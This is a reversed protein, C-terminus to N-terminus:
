PLTISLEWSDGMQADPLKLIKCLASYPANTSYHQCPFFRRVLLFVQGLDMKGVLYRMHVSRPDFEANQSSLGSVLRRLWTVAAFESMLKLLIYLGLGYRATFM